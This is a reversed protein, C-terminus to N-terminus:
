AIYITSVGKAIPSFHLIILIPVNIPTKYIAEQAM